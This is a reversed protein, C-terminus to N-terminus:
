VEQTELIEVDVLLGSTTGNFLYPYQDDTGVWLLQTGTPPEYTVYYGYVTNAVPGGDHAFVTSVVQSRAVGDGADEPPGFPVLDQAEYGSFDAEALDALVTDLGATLNNKFLRVKKPYPADVVLDLLNELGEIPILDAM